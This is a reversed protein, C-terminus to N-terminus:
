EPLVGPPPLDKGQLKYGRLRLWEISKFRREPSLESCVASAKHFAPLVIHAPIGPLEKMFFAFDYNQLAKIRKHLEQLM